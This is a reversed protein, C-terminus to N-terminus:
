LSLGAFLLELEQEQSITRQVSMLQMIKNLVKLRHAVYTSNAPLQNMKRIEDQVVAQKRACWVPKQAAPQHTAGDDMMQDLTNSGNLNNLSDVKARLSFFFEPNCYAAVVPQSELKKHNHNSLIQYKQTLTWFHM